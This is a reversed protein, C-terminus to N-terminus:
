DDDHTDERALRSPGPNAPDRLADLVLQITWAIVPGGRDGNLGYEDRFALWTRSSALYRILAIIARADEDGLHSVLPAMAKEVESSRQQQLQSITGSEWTTLVLAKMLDADQDFARANRIIAEPIDDAHEPISVEGRNRGREQLWIALNDILDQRTAFHRYVTRHTIGARDAVQQISVDRLGDEVVMRAFTGLILERTEYWDKRRPAGAPTM